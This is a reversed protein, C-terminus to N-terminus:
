EWGGYWYGKGEPTDCSILFDQHKMTYPNFWTGDVKAFRTTEACYTKGAKIRATKLVFGKKVGRSNVALKVTTWDFDDNNTIRFETQRYTHYFKVSAKLHTGDEPSPTTPSPLKQVKASAPPAKETKVPPTFPQKVNEIPEFVGSFWALAVVVAALALCAIVNKTQKKQALKRKLKERTEPSTREEGCIGKEEEPSLMM